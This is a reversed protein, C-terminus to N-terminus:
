TLGPASARVTLDACLMDFQRRAYARWSLSARQVADLGCPADADAVADIAAVLAPVDDVPLVKVGDNDSSLMQADRGGTMGAGIVSCDCAIAQITVLGSGDQRSPFILCGARRHLDSLRAQDVAGQAQVWAADPVEVDGTAGVHWLSFGRAGMAPMAKVLVDVGKQYSCGGVFLIM